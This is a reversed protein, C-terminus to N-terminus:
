YTVTVTITDSYSGPKATQQGAPIRGYVTISVDTDLGAGSLGTYLATGSTGWVTSRSFDQYLQYNLTNSTAGKMQMQRASVNTSSGASLAVSTISTTNTCRIAITTTADVTTNQLPNYNGFALEATTPSSCSAAVTASNSAAPSTITTTNAAMASNFGGLVLAQGICFMLLIKNRM